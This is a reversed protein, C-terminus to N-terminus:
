KTIIIPNYNDIPKYLKDGVEDSIFTWHTAELEVYCKNMASLLSESYHDPIGNTCYLYRQLIHEYSHGKILIANPNMPLYELSKISCKLTFENYFNGNKELYSLALDALQYAVTQKDTLPTMYTGAKIAEEKIFFREKICFSPIFHQTTLEVNVTDEPFLDDLDPYTIYAHRPARTLFVEAGFEEAIVKFTLPLPRCQGKHTRLTRSVLQQRFDNIPLEVGYDYTFPTHNNGSWPKFFYDTLAIQKATKYSWSNNVTILRELFSVAKEIPKCIDQEYDLNGDLYAWEALFVARKISLPRKGDLMESIETYAVNYLSDYPFAKLKDFIFLSLSLIVLRIINTHKCKM